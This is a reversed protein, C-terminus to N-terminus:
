LDSPKMHRALQGWNGRETRLVTEVSQIYTDLHSAIDGQRVAQQIIPLHAQIEELNQLADRYLKAQQEFAYLASYGTVTTSLVPCIAAVLLCLLKVWSSSVTEFAGALAAIFILGISFWLAQNKAQTFEEERQIYFSLQDEHRYRQYLQLFQEAEQPNM